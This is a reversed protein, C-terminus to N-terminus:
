HYVQSYAAKPTHHIIILVQLQPPRGGEDKPVIFLFGKAPSLSEEPDDSSVEIMDGESIGPWVDHNFMVDPNNSPDHVWITLTKSAGIGAPTVPSRPGQSQMTNSRRRRYAHQSEARASSM